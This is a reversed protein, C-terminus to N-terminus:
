HPHYNDINTPVTFKFPYEIDENLIKGDRTKLGKKITIIYNTNEGWEGVPSIALINNNKNGKNIELSINSNIIIIATSIDIPSDFEFLIATGMFLMERNGPLPNTQILKLAPLVTPTETEKSKKFFLYAFLSVFSILIFFVVVKRYNKIKGM